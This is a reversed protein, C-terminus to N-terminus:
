SSSSSAGKRRRSLAVYAAIGLLALTWANKTRRSSTVKCGCGSNDQALFVSRGGATGSNAGTGVGIGGTGGAGAGGTVVTVPEQCNGDVCAAGGPCVTGFCSDVCKTQNDAPDLVCFFGADCTVNECGPPVCYGTNSDCVKGDKCPTCGCLGVCGGLTPDCVADSPCVKGTCLDKCAGDVCTQNLPCVIGSCPSTCVGNRCALGEDCKVDVCAREICYNDVGCAWGSPCIFEGGGCNFVCSGHVCIKETPCLEGEDVTGDCDNDIDDCVEDRPTYVPTCTPLGGDNACESIGKGCLGVGGPVECELGGGACSIGVLKFVKDNFDGDNPWVNPNGYMPWDEFALYYTDKANSSRYALAAVWHDPTACNSCFLNRRYESYYIAHLGTLAAINDYSTLAFGIYPGKFAPDSRISASDIMTGGSEPLIIHHLESDAPPKEPNAEDVNYWAIGAMGKSVQHVLEATFNCLPSFKGPEKGAAAIADIAEVPSTTDFFDQLTTENYNDDKLQELDPVVTGDPETTAALVTTGHLTVAGLATTAVLLGLGGFVRNLSKM